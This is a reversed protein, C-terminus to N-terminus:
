SLPRGQAIEVLTPLGILSNVLPATSVTSMPTDLPLLENRVFGERAGSRRWRAWRGSPWGLAWWTGHPM